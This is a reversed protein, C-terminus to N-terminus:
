VNITDNSTAPRFNDGDNIFFSYQDQGPLHVDIIMDLKHDSNVDKFNVTVPSQGSDMITIQSVYWAVSAKDAKGAKLEIVVAQNNLNMAIFHSPHAPSDGGHGVAMDTQFTRPTGYRVDYYRQMGWALVASGILWLVLMCIMGLGIFFLWHMQKLQVFLSPKLARKELPPTNKPAPRPSLQRTTQAQQRKPISTTSYTQTVPPMSSLPSPPGMRVTSSKPRPPDAYGEDFGDTHRYSTIREARERNPYTQPKPELSEPDLYNTKRRRKQTQSGDEEM